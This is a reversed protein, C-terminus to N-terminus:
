DSQIPRSTAQVAIDLPVTYYCQGPPPCVLQMDLGMADLDALRQDNGAICEKIDVEQKANLARTAADAFHALPITAHDIHPMALAHARPVAVHAHMDVTVSKPRTERGPRGRKRAATPEYRNWMDAM